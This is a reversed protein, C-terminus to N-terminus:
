SQRVDGIMTIAVIPGVGFTETLTTGSTAVTATLQKTTNPMHARIGRLNELFAAAFESM